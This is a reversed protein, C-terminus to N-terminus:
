RASEWQLRQANDVVAFLAYLAYSTAVMAVLGLLLFRFRIM